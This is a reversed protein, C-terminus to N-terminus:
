TTARTGLAKKVRLAGMLEGEELDIRFVGNEGAIQLMIGEVLEVTVGEGLDGEITVQGRPGDSVEIRGLHQKSGMEVSFSHKGRAHKVGIKSM